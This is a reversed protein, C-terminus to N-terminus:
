LFRQPESATSDDDSSLSESSSSSSSDSTYDSIDIENPDKSIIVASEIQKEGQSVVGQSVVGQSVVGQSVVGQTVVGQSVVGQSVVGQSVVGQSVVGQSVIGQSVVEQSVVGQSVVGQSVVGQSVVGQEGSIKEADNTQNTTLYCFNDTMSTFIDGNTKHVKEDAVTESKVEEPLPDNTQNEIEEICKDTLDDAITDDIRVDTSVGALIQKESVSEAGSACEKDAM